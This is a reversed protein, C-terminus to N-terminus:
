SLTLVNKEPGALAVCCRSVAQALWIRVTTRLRQEKQKHRDVAIRLQGLQSADMVARRASRTLSDCAVPPAFARLSGPAVSLALDLVTAGPACPFTGLHTYPAHSCLRAPGQVFQYLPQTRWNTALPLLHVGCRAIFRCDCSCRERCWNRPGLMGALIPGWSGADRGDAPGIRLVPVPNDLQFKHRGALRLSSHLAVHINQLLLGEPCDCHREVSLLGHMTQKRIASLRSSHRKGAVSSPRIAPDWSPGLIRRLLCRHQVKAQFYGPPLGLVRPQLNALAAVQTSVGAEIDGVQQQGVKGPGGKWTRM